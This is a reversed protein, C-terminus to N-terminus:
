FRTSIELMVTRPVNGFGLQDAFKSNASGGQTGTSPGDVVGSVYFTNTLNKGLLAVDWRRDERGFRLSADLTWYSGMVALPNAFGSPNYGDSYHGDAAIAFRLDGGVPMEYRGGMTAAYLPANATPKGSVDQYPYGDVVYTCGLAPTQGSYCPIKSNDYTAKNYDFQGHLNLGPVGHPVYELSLEVGRTKADATITNFAFIDSRFFDVQLDIFKYEYATVNLRLQQDMLTSKIGAEYGHAKEPGFTLDGLPDQSLSSNVGSISFGGSKYGSKYAAYLMVDQVPTWSLTVEPSTNTFLQHATVVGLPDSAPRFIGTVAANNYPQSMESDKTEHSYRAGATAQVTPTISWILQGFVSWTKGNTYGVKSTAQYRDQPSVSSDEVNAFAINQQFDRKTDQYYVGLMGNLPSSTKTLARLESSKATFPSSETAFVTIPSGQFDCNCAWENLNHNWNSVWTFDVADLDYELNLTVTKSDYNNYQSGDGRAHPFNAAMDVPMNLQHTVFHEGCPYNNPSGPGYPSLQSIGTPSRYCVYNWSSNNVKDSDYSAKLTATFQNNPTWKLTVRGLLEETGPQDSNEPLATHQNLVGTAIDYTSYPVSSLMENKYYGGYMKTGRVAIRVGFTDNVPASYIGEAQLSESEFEYSARSLIETEKGPDNTQINIVGATANKGFFLAQPGKLIELSKLDFFGEQIIRGQGYYIGDVVVAVSQEIGISTSSSGIGRLTVQAGSGNSAHGVSFNPVSAAVKDLSTLDNDRIQEASMATVLLPVDQVSESRKRATVVIEELGGVEPKTQAHASTGIGGVAFALITSVSQIWQRSARDKM